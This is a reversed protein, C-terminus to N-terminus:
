YSNLFDYEITRYVGSNLRSQLRNYDEDHFPSEYNFSAHLKERNVKAEYLDM